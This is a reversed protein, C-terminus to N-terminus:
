RLTLTMKELKGLYVADEPLVDEDLYRNLSRTGILLLVGQGARVVIYAEGAISWVDGDRLVKPAEQRSNVIVVDVVM